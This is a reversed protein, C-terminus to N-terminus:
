TVKPKTLYNAVFIKIKSSREEIFIKKYSLTKVDTKITQEAFLEQKSIFNDNERGSLTPM